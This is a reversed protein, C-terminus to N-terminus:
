DCLLLLQWFFSAQTFNSPICDNSRLHIQSKKQFRLSHTRCAAAAGQELIKQQTNLEPRAATRLIQTNCIYIYITCQSIQFQEVPLCFTRMVVKLIALTTQKQTTLLIQYIYQPITPIRCSQYKAHMIKVTATVTLSCKM